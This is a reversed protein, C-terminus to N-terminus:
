HRNQHDHNIEKKQRLQKYLTMYREVVRDWTYREKIVELARRQMQAIVEPEHRYLVIARRMADGLTAARSGPYSFGTEGDVVKVLGGVAHVIPLNAFLQAQYDTLGCPEYQSPILFFDGAAFIRRATLPDYGMLVCVRGRNAVALAQLAEEVVQQGSGLILIQFDPDIPLLKKLAELLKDIGKQASFRGVFTFLPQDYNLTLTGSQRIDPISRQVVARILEEKCKRKGPILGAAHSGPTFAAAISSSRTQPNYSEPEIGNTIGMLKIGRNLLEHGLWGTLRDTDTERLERAYNESVTNVFSYDAASLLPDFSGHLIGRKIVQSTLGTIAQAFPLDAVEQHYGLGANHITLLFGTQHFYHRYGELERAMVPLLATHGDHCHIIDPHTHLRTILGLAAKELLVNMAFYDYHGDGEKHYPTARAEAATYSYIGLKERFRPSDVLYVTVGDQRGQWILAEERREEQSYSLDLWLSLLPKFGSKEPKMFGYCPLIVSVKRGQRVLAASLQCVVDKIGGAGALNGYERSVMWISKIATM